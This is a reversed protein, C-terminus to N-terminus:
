AGPITTLCNRCRLSPRGERMERRLQRSVPGNWAQRLTTEPFRGSTYYKEMMGCCTSIDGNGRIHMYRFPWSCFTETPKPDPNLKEMPVLSFCNQFEIIDARDKWMEFFADAETYNEPKVLFSVWFLPRREGLAASEALFADINRMIRNFDGGRVRGYTEATAADLSIHMRTRIKEACRLVAARIDADFRPGNGYLLFEQFNRNRLDDLMGIIQPHLMPEGDALSVSKFGMDEAEDLIAQYTPLDLMAGSGRTKAFSRFCTTCKLDCADIVELLLHVPADLDNEPLTELAGLRSWLQRYAAFEPGFAGRLYEELDGHRSYMRNGIIELTGEKLIM